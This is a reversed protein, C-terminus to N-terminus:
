GTDGTMNFIIPCLMNTYRGRGTLTVHHKRDRSLKVGWTDNGISTTNYGLRRRLGNELYHARFKHPDRGQGIQTVHSEDTLHSNSERLAM